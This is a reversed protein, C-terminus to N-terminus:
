HGNECMDLEGLRHSFVQALHMVEDHGCRLGSALFAEGHRFAAKIGQSKVFWRRVHFHPYQESLPDPDIGLFVRSPAVLATRIPAEM